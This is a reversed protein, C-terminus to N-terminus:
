KKEVHQGVFYRGDKEQYMNARKKPEQNTEYVDYDSRSLILTFDLKQLFEIAEAKTAFHHAWFNPSIDVM